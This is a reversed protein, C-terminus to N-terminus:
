FVGEESAREIGTLKAGTQTKRESHCVMENLLSVSM